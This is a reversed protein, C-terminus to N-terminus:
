TKEFMELLSSLAETVESFSIKEAYRYEQSYKEWRLKLIDSTKLEELRQNLNEFIYNTNRHKITQILAERFLSFQFECVKTLIYIDYFDRTRTNLEGRLLVTEVKEALLSEINYALVEIKDSEFIKTYLRFVEQPTIVDGTTLDMQLPIVLTDYYANLGVRFGGYEDENRIAQIGQISFYVQDSLEISCIEDLAKLLPEIQLPFDKITADLDMTSRIEIGVMDAILLGGKLIFNSKYKSHSLRELFREFMFNQLVVQASINKCKSFNVIKAKLSKASDNM